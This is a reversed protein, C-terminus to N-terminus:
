FEWPIETRCLQLNLGRHLSVFPCVPNLSQRQIRRPRIQPPVSPTQECMKMERPDCREHRVLHQYGALCTFSEKLFDELELFLM